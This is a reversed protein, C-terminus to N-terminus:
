PQDTEQPLIAVVSAQKDCQSSGSRQPLSAVPDSPEGHVALRQGAVIQNVRRRTIGLTAAIKAKSAGQAAMDRVLRTRASGQRETGAVYILGTHHAKLQEFLEAPLVDKANAYMKPM